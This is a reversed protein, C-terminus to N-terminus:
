PKSQLEKLRDLLKAPGAGPAHRQRAFRQLIAIENETQNQKRYIIALQSYYWPAVGWHMVRAECEIAEILDILLKEAQALIGDRKLNRVEEVYDSYHRGNYFGESRDEITESATLSALFAHHTGLYKRTDTIGDPESLHKRM